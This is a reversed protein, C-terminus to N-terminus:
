FRVPLRGLLILSLTEPIIENNNANKEQTHVMKKIPNSLFKKHNQDPLHIKTGKTKYWELSYNLLIIKLFTWRLNVYNFAIQQLVIM